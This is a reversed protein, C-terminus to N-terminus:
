KSCYTIVRETKIYNMLKAKLERKEWKIVGEPVVGM